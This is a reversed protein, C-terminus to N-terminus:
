SMTTFGPGCSSGGAFGQNTPSFAGRPAICVRLSNKECTPRDVLVSARVFFRLMSHHSIGGYGHSRDSVAFGFACLAKDFDSRCHVRACMRNLLISQACMRLTRRRWARGPM